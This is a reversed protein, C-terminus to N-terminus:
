RSLGGYVANAIGAGISPPKAGNEVQFSGGDVHTYHSSSAFRAASESGLSVELLSSLERQVAEAIAYRDNPAFSHLVLEEIHLRITPRTM